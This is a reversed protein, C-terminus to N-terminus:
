VACLLVASVVIFGLLTKKLCFRKRRQEELDKVIQFVEEVDYNGDGNADYARITKELDDLYGKNGRDVAISALSLRRNNVSTANKRAAQRNTQSGKKKLGQIDTSLILLPYCQM